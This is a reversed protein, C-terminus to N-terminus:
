VLVTGDGLVPAAPADAPAAARVLRPTLVTDGRLAVQGGTAAPDDAVRALVALAAADVGAADPDAATLDAALDALVIRDPHESQASRLLGWVAAGALDTVPDDDRTAVAGRTLVVLRTDALADAALWAQVVGLMDAAVARVVDPLGAPSVDPLGSREAAPLGGESSAAPAPLVPLVLARPLGEGAEGAAALVAAVDAFVPLDLAWVPRSPTLLAWGTPEEAPPVEEAQWAVEFLSRAAVGPATLGTMERLALADVSVVPA